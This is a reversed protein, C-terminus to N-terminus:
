LRRAVSCPMTYTISQNFNSVRRLERHLELIVLATSYVLPQTESVGLSLPCKITLMLFLLVTQDHGESSAKSREDELLISIPKSILQVFCSNASSGFFTQLLLETPKEAITFITAVIAYPLYCVVLTIQVWLASSVTKKYRVINLSVGGRNTQGKHINDQVQAQHNHLMLYIKTYCLTSTVMCFLMVICIISITIRFYVFFTM